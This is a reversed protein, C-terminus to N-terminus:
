FIALKNIEDSLKELAIEKYRFKEIPKSNIKINKKAVFVKGNEYKVGIITGLAEYPMGNFRSHKNTKIARVAAKAEKLYLMFTENNSNSVINVQVKRRPDNYFRDCNIWGLKNSSLIYRQLEWDKIKVDKRKAYFEEFRKKYDKRSLTDNKDDFEFYVRTNEKLKPFLTTHNGKLKDSVKRLVNYFELDDEYGDKKFTLLSDVMKNSRIVFENSLSGDMRRQIIEIEKPSLHNLDNKGTYYSILDNGSHYTVTRVMLDPTGNVNYKWEIVSGKSLQENFLRFGKEKKGNTPFHIKISKGDSLSIEKNDLTYAKVEVMGATELNERKSTQTSLCDFFYSSKSYSEKLTVKVNKVEGFANNPIFIVTGEKGEIFNSEETNIRFSQTQSSLVDFLSDLGRKINPKSKNIASEVKKVEEVLETETTDIKIKASDLISNTSDSNVDPQSPPLSTVTIRAQKVKPEAECSYLIFALLTIILIQAKM